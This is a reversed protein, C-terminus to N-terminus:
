KDSYARGALTDVQVGPVDRVFESFKTYGFEKMNFSHYKERIDSGLTALSLGAKGTAKVEDRVFQAANEYRKRTRDSLQVCM